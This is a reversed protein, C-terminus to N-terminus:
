ATYDSVCVGKIFSDGALTIKANHVAQITIDFRSTGTNKVVTVVEVGTIAPVLATIATDVDSASASAFVATINTSTGNYVFPVATGGAWSYTFACRRISTCLATFSQAGLTTSTISVLQWEGTVSIVTNSGDIAVAVGAIYESPDLNADEYGEAQAVAVIAAKIGAVGSANAFSTSKNVGERDKYTIANFTAGSTAVSVRYECADLGDGCCGNELTYFKMANNQNAGEPSIQKLMAQINAGL